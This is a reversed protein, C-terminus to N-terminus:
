MLRVALLFAAVTAAVVALAAAVRMERDLRRRAEDIESKSLLRRAPPGDERRAARPLPMAVGREYGSGMLDDDIPARAAGLPHLEALSPVANVFAALVVPLLM